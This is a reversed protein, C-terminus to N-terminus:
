SLRTNADALTAGIEAHIVLDAIADLATAERNIIALGAGNGKALEPFGAAPYVQLSSGISVFLDCALTEREARAMQAEPMPQGFSITATKLLGGCGDCARVQGTREYEGRLDQLEHRRGCDLCRAYGANGHLETIQEDPAGALQHLNDVNQTIIHAVKGAKMWDALIQHGQNPAKGALGREGSFTRRWSEHRAEPSRVFDGFQIPQMRTWIGGPSRFDPIGSETSMGAGTFVVVHRAAAILDALANALKPFDQM